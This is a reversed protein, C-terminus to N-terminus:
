PALNLVRQLFDHTIQGVIDPRELPALHGCEALEVFRAAPQLEQWRQWSEDGVTDSHAGRIALSPLTIQPIVEWVDLPPQGYIAAEWERPFRLKLDGDPTEVFGGHVYDWLAEDSLREFVSKQRYHEFAKRRSPWRNRRNRARQAMPIDRAQQPHQRAMELLAPPLLVPEVLVLASFLDPRQRAAIMSVVGGLSHGVGVVPQASQQELSRILDRAFLHWGDLDQPAQGPWLPRQEMAWVHFHDNLNQLLQRYCQPPYANAHALHLSPGDGGFDITPIPDPDQMDRLIVLARRIFVTSM